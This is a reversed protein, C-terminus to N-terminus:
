CSGVSFQHDIHGGEAQSETVNIMMRSPYEFIQLIHIFPQFLVRIKRWGLSFKRSYANLPENKLSAKEVGWSLEDHDM